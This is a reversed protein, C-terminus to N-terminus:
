DALIDERATTSNNVEFRLLETIEYGNRGCITMVMVKAGELRGYRVLEDLLMGYTEEVTQAYAILPSHDDFQYDPQQLKVLGTYEQYKGANKKDTERLSRLLSKIYETLKESSERNKSGADWAAKENRYIRYSFWAAVFAGAWVGVVDPLGVMRTMGQGVFPFFIFCGIIAGVIYEYKM